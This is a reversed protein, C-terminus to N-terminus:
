CGEDPACVLIRKGDVLLYVAGRMALLAQRGGGDDTDALRRVLEFHETSGFKITVDAKELEPKDVLRSDFWKGARCFLTQDAIQMVSLVRTKKMDSTWYTNDSNACSQVAAAKLNMSQNVASLGAREATRTTASDMAFRVQEEHDRVAVPTGSPDEALFSTYETLIGWRMSLRVVEDILERTRPDSRVDGGVGAQRVEDLLFAIKRSAWLRPVFANATTAKAIELPFQFTRKEGLYEGTLELRPGKVDEGVAYRGLVVLQDGSFLDPLRAPLVDRLFEGAMSARGHTGALLPENMVPGALGRFVRSVSAEINEGPLVNISTGRSVEALRDLLPANLDYGVGFTFLRRKATNASATDQRIAGEDTNGVTPMGDTLFVVFPLFGDTVPQKLAQQLAEHINTGGEAQLAKLYSRADGLTTAGKIVPQPAFRQISDSYDIINFAEGENLGEVVSLASDRAQAWKEGRMSGSRDLVITVERKAILRDASEPLNPVGGLMLFYGQSGAKGPTDLDPYLMLSTPIPDNGTSGLVSSIRFIGPANSALAPVEFTMETDSVRETHLPHSPSYITGVPRQSRVRGKVTWATASAELSGSRPLVYDIRASDRIAGADADLINEYTLTITSHGQAPVPFVSSRVFSCNVFELLAPDLSRRVIDEYIRRAEDRPLVKATPEQGPGDFGFSRIAAGHPVPILMEAEQVSSSPNKVTMRLTTTAVSERMDVEAEVSAIEIATIGPRITIARGRSAQPVIINSVRIDVSAGPPVTITTAGPQAAVALSVSGVALVLSALVRRM